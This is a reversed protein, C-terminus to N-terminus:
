RAKKYVIIEAEKFHRETIVSYWSTDTMVLFHHYKGWYLDEMDIFSDPLLTINELYKIVDEPLFNNTSVREYIWRIKSLYLKALLIFENENIATPLHKLGSIIINAWLNDAIYTKYNPHRFIAYLSSLYNHNYVHSPIFILSDEIM